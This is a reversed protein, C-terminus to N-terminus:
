RAKKRLMRQAIAVISAAVAGVGVVFLLLLMMVEIM